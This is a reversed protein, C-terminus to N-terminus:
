PAAQEYAKFVEGVKAEEATGRHVYLRYRLDFSRGPELTFDELHPWSVGLFGYHRLIWGPHPYGPNSPHQFVATGAYPGDEAARSSFDAWPTAIELADEDRPGQVTTIQFDRRTANPRVCFGGYGKGEAGLFHVPEDSVNEFTLHFDIARGTDDAPRVVFRVTERVVPESDDKFVWVNQVAVEARDDGAERKLWKEFRPECDEHLWLDMRREGARTWPWAWFIGRHHYHDEPFDQTLEEGDLGYLPHIYCARAWRDPDLGEPPTVPGYNYVLVPSSGDLVTLGSGDDQLSFNAGFAAMPVVLLAALVLRASM